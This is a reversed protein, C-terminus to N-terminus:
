LWSFGVIEDKISQSSYSRDKNDEVMQQFCNKPFIERRMRNFVPVQRNIEEEEQRSKNHAISIVVSPAFHRHTLEELDPQDSKMRQHDKSYDNASNSKIEIWVSVAHCM